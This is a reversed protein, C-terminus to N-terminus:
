KSYEQM